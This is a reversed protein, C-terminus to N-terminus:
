VVTALFQVFHYQTRDHAIWKLAMPLGFRCLWILSFSSSAQLLQATYDMKGPRLYFDPLLPFDICRTFKCLKSVKTMNFM